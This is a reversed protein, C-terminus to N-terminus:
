QGSAPIQRSFAHSMLEWCWCLHFDCFLVYTLTGHLVGPTGYTLTASHVSGPAGTEGGAEVGVLRVEKDDAFPHFMGIANSGGGVCAVAVDPLKGTAEIFQARAEKGIVSQTTASMM